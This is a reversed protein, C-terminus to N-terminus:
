QCTYRWMLRGNVYVARYTYYAGGCLNPDTPRKRLLGTTGRPRLGPTPRHTGAPRRPHPTPSATLGPTHTPGRTATQIPRSAETSPTRHPTPTATPRPATPTLRSGATPTPPPRPAPRRQMRSPRATNRPSPPPKTNPLYLRSRQVGVDNVAVLEVVSLGRPVVWTGRAAVPRRGLWVSTAGRVQWSLVLDAGSRRLHVGVIQPLSWRYVQPQPAEGAALTVRVVASVAGAGNTAILRYRASHLPPTLRLRGSPGVRRGNLTVGAAHATQWALTYGAPPHKLAFHVIAPAAVAASRFAPPARPPVVLFASATGVDNTARLTYTLARTALLLPRTGRAPVSADDLAVASARVVRWSLTLRGGATEDRATFQRILPLHLRSPPVTVRVVRPQVRLVQSTSGNTGSATLVLTTTAGLHFLHQGSAAVPQGDLKVWTAGSTRWGVTVAGDQGAGISFSQISPLAVARVASVRPLAAAPGGGRGPPSPGALGPLIRWGGLLLVMVAVAAAPLAYRWPLAASPFWSAWIPPTYTFLAHRVLDPSVKQGLGPQVGRFEIEHMREPGILRRKGPTVLVSAPVTSHGPVLLPGAPTRFSLSDDADHAALELTVPWDSRNRFTITFTASRGWAGLPSVEIGLDGPRAMTLAVRAAAGAAPDDSTVQITIDHHVAGTAHAGTPRLTLQTRRTTGAPVTVVSQALEGWASPIGDVAISLRAESAGTNQLTLSLPVEEGPTLHVRQPTVALHVTQSV